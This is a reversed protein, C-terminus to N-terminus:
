GSNFLHMAKSPDGGCFLVITKIAENDLELEFRLKAIKYSKIANLKKYAIILTALIMTMYVMVKMGNGDRSVLHKVNLHQKIFKFFVEIEWRQRYWSAITYADEDLINTVFLIARGGQDTSGKIVRYRHGTQKGKRNILYCAEDSDICVTAGDPKGGVGNSSVPSYRINPNGRTVFWKRAGTMKDFSDRSQLGRDFVVVNDEIAGTVDLLEALALEESVYSQDKFVRVCCPLSGKLTVGYKLFRKDTLGHSSRMGEGFLKTALGVYTSDAKSLAGQEGLEKNYTRFVTDFLKEFYAPNITCIRDRISNYRGDLIDFRSFARFRASRLYTEMVRLSLKESGLMSFLILKFMVEGSLKKVQFDVNTEVALEAFTGPPILRLLEDVKM